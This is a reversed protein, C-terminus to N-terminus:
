KSDTITLVGKYTADLAPIKVVYYYSGDPLNDGNWTNEYGVKSFVIQGHNNIVTVENEPYFFFMSELSKTDFINWVDNDGDGNPTIFNSVVLIPDTPVLPPPPPPPTTATDLVTLILFDNDTCGIADIVTVTYAITGVTGAGLICPTATNSNILSGAPTWSYFVGGTASFCITDGLSITSDAGANAVPPTFVTITACTSTDDACVGNAVIACYMTTQTLNLYPQTPTSNLIGNYTVGGDTSSIWNDVTGTYGTLMLTDSNSGSCVNANATVFGPVPPDDVTITVVTSAAPTCVGNDVVARYLTTTTLNNYNYSATTNGLSNWSAGGNTSYEWDLITGLYSTLNITGSNGSSCVTADSSLIGADTTDDVTLTVSPSIGDPCLGGDIYVQYMTTTTLGSFAEINTTNPISDWTTGGDTSSQWYSIYGTNGTLVLNGSNFGSCITDSSALIGGVVTTDNLITMTLADNAPNTETSLNIDVVITYTGQNSFDACAFFTYIYTGGVPLTLSFAETVPAGGNIVYSITAPTVFIGTPGNNYVTVTIPNCSSLNCGSDVSPMNTVLLDQASATYNQLSFFVTMIIVSIRLM